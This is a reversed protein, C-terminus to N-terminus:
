TSVKRTSNVSKVVSDTLKVSFFVEEKVGLYRAISTILDPDVTKNINELRYYRMPSIGLNRAVAIQTIGKAKRVKKINDRVKM